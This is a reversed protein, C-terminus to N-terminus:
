TASVAAAAAPSVPAAAAADISLRRETAWAATTAGPGGPDAVRNLTRSDEGRRVIESRLVALNKEGPDGIRLDPDLLSASPILDNESACLELREDNPDGVRLAIRDDADRHLECYCVTSNTSERAASVPRL